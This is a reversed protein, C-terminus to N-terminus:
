SRYSISTEATFRFVWKGNINDILFGYGKYYKKSDDYKFWAKIKYKVKYQDYSDMKEVDIEDFPLSKTLATDLFSKLAIFEEVADQRKYVKKNYPRPTEDFYWLNVFSATDNTKLYGLTKDLILQAEKKSIKQGFSNLTITLCIVTLTIIKKMSTM